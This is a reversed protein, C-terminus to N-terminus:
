TEIQGSMSRWKAYRFIAPQLVPEMDGFSYIGLMIGCFAMGVLPGQTMTAMNIQAVYELDENSEFERFGIKYGRANCLISFLLAGSSHVLDRRTTKFNGKGDVPTTVVLERRDPSPRRLGITAYCYEHHWLIAGAEWRPNSRNFDMETSFVGELDSQKRLLMSSNEASGPPYSGGMLELGGSSFSWYRKLPTKNHYWGLELEPGSFTDEWDQNISLEYTGPSPVGELSVNRRHNFVPWNDEWTVPVLYTERGFPSFTQLRGDAITVPRVGLLVAWWHGNADELVDAHGTCQVRETGNNYWLPQGESGPREEWPGFPGHTSRFCWETHGSETGGEATLLFYFHGYKFIHSGESVGPSVSSSRIMKPPTLSAGSGLDVRSIHIAFNKPFERRYSVDDEHMRYTTSLYVSGDDDWFLDQDFGPQDFYIPDSWSSSDWINDTWVFFGRPWVRDDAQPRYRDWKCTCIYWRGNKHRITSAWIGGGPECTRLDLQPRRTLAHGVLRWSILDTSHYIPIGPFYEFSSTILFIDNGKRAWSPDPNFGTLIPNRYPRLKHTDAAM